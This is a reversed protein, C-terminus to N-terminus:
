KAYPIMAASNAVSVNLDNTVVHYLAVTCPSTFLMTSWTVNFTVLSAITAIVCPLININPLVVNFLHDQSIKDKVM